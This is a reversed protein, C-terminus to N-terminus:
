AAGSGGEARAAELNEEVRRRRELAEAHHRRIEALAVQRWVQVACFWAVAYGAVGAVLARLGSDFFPVGARLSLLAVAAFCAIGGIGKARAISHRARPHRELTIMEGANV